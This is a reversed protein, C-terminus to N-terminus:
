FGGSHQDPLQTTKWGHTRPPKIARWPQVRPRPQQWLGAVEAQGLAVFLAPTVIRVVTGIIANPDPM